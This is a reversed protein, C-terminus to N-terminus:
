RFRHKLHLKKLKRHAAFIGLKELITQFFSQYERRPQSTSNKHAELAQYRYNHERYM